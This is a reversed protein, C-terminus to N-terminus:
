TILSSVEYAKIDILLASIYKSYFLIEGDKSLKLREINSSVDCYKGGSFSQYRITIQLQVKYRIPTINTDLELKLIMNVAMKTFLSRVLIFDIERSEGAEM